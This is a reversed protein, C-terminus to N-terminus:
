GRQEDTTEMSLSIQNPMVGSYPTFGDSAFQTVTQATQVAKTSNQNTLAKM